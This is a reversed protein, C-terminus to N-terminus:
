PVPELLVVVLGPLVELPEVRGDASGEEPADPGAEGLPPAPEFYAAEGPVQRLPPRNL